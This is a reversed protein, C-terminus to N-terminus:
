MEWVQKSSFTATLFCPPPTPHLPILLGQLASSYPPGQWSSTILCSLFIQLTNHGKQLHSNKLNLMMTVPIFCLARATKYSIEVDWIMNELGPFLFPFMKLPFVSLETSLHAKVIM